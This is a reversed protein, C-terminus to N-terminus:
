LAVQGVPWVVQLVQEPNNRSPDFIQERLGRAVEHCANIRSMIAAGLARLQELTMVRTSNDALTWVIQPAGNIEMGQIAGRVFEVSKADADFVSGDFEIPQTSVLDRMQKMQAWRLERAMELDTPLPTISGQAFPSEPLDVLAKECSGVLDAGEVRLQPITVYDQWSFRQGQNAIYADMSPWSYVTLTVVGHQDLFGAEAKVVRHWAIEAGGPTTIKKLIPM